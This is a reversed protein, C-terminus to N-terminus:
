HAVEAVQEMMRYTFSLLVRLTWPLAWFVAFLLHQMVAALLFEVRVFVNHQHPRATFSHTIQTRSQWTDHM